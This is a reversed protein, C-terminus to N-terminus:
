QRAPTERLADIIAAEMWYNDANGNRHSNFFLYRGDPSVMPCGENSPSNVRPGMNRPATWTGDENRFSVYLDTRGLGEPAASRVFLLYSEDPAIFPRDEGLESNVPAGLNVPEAYRGDISRSVYLDGAGSGGPDGSNFYINGNAAVSFQWHTGMTNPGGDVLEPESWGDTTRDVWWIREGGRGRHSLFFLKSGDPHFFPVDDGVRRESFPAPAPATWRGNKIRSTMIMGYTYPEDVAPFSSAWFAEGGDPSFTVTGHQFTHTSVVDPAFLVPEPGPSAQGLYRGVLAPFALGEDRAGAQRLLRVVDGRDYALAGDLPAFGALSRVDTDAGRELLLRVVSTRGNESAYHLPTRGYRDRGNLHLGHALLLETIEVSGGAAASHLLSGGNENAMGLDVGGDALQRVLRVLGRRTANQVLEAAGEPDTPLRAGRDLFLDILDRFGRWAALDLPTDGFHDEANLNAGGDLLQRAMEVEGTERAVLLLPTRGYSEPIETDAGHQLLLAVVDDESRLVAWHLPTEQEFNAANVDAGHSLLYAVVNERGTWAAFHLPTNEAEDSANVLTSDGAVFADVANLDGDLAAAHISGPPEGCDLTTAVLLLAAVLERTKM